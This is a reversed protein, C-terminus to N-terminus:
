QKISFIKYHLGLLCNGTRIKCYFRLFFTHFINLTLLLSVMIKVNVDDQNREQQSQVYKVGNELTEITSLSWTITQQSLRASNPSVLWSIKAVKWVIM